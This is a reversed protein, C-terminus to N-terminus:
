EDDDDDTAAAAASGPAFEFGREEYKQVRALVKCIANTRDIDESCFAYRTFEIRGETACRLAADSHVFRPTLEADVLMAVACQEMDFERAIQAPSIRHAPTGYMPLSSLKDSEPLASWAARSGLLIINVRLLPEYAARRSRSMWSIKLPKAPPATCVTHGRHRVVELVMSTHLGYSRPEGVTDAPLAEQIRLQLKRPLAYLPQGSGIFLDFDDGLKSGSAVDVVQRTPFPEMRGFGYPTEENEEGAGWPRQESDGEFDMPWGYPNHERSVHYGTGGLDVVLQKVCNIAEKYAADSQVFVDMDEPQWGVGAIGEVWPSFASKDVHQPRVQCQLRHLAFSGAVTAACYSPAQAKLRQAAQVVRPDSPLLSDAIAQMTASRAIDVVLPDLPYECGRRSSALEHAAVEIAEAKACRVQLDHIFRLEAYLKRAGALVKRPPASRHEVGNNDFSNQGACHSFKMSPHQAVFFSSLEGARLGSCVGRLRVQDAPGLLWWQDLLLKWPMAETQPQPLEWTPAAISAQAMGATAAVVGSDDMEAALGRLTEALARREPQSLTSSLQKLTRLSNPIDSYPRRRTPSLRLSAILSAM